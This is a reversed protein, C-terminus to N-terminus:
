TNLSSLYNPIKILKRCWMEWLPTFYIERHIVDM